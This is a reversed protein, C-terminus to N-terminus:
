GRSSRRRRGGGRRRPRSRREASAGDPGAPDLGANRADVGAEPEDADDPWRADRLPASPRSGRRAGRRWRGRPPGGAGAVVPAEGPGDGPEVGAAAGRRTPAGTRVSRPPAGDRSAAAGDDLAHHRRRRRQEVRGPAADEDLVSPPPRPAGARRSPQGAGPAVTDPDRSVQPGRVASGADPRRREGREPGRRKRRRAAEDPLRAHGVLTLQHPDVPSRRSTARRPSRQRASTRVAPAVTTTAPRAPAPIGAVVSTSPPRAATIPTTRRGWGLADPGGSRADHGAPRRVDGRRGRRTAPPDAAGDAPVTPRTPWAGMGPLAAAAPGRRPRRSRGDVEGREAPRM